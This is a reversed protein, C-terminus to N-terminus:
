GLSATGGAVQATLTGCHMSRDLMLRVCICPIAVNLYWMVCPVTRMSCSYQLPPDSLSSSLPSANVCSATRLWQPETIAATDPMACPMAYMWEFRM